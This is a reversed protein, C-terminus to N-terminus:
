RPLGSPTRGPIHPGTGAGATRSTEAALKVGGDPDVTDLWSPAPKLFPSGLRPTVWDGGVGWGVMGGGLAPSLGPESVTGSGPASGRTFLFEM